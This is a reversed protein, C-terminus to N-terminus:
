RALRCRRARASGCTRATRRARQGRAWVGSDDGYIRCHRSPGYGDMPFTLDGDERGIRFSKAPSRTARVPTLATTMINVRGWYGPNPSGMRETGNETCSPEPLDEYVLLEQGVRFMDKDQLEFRGEIKRYVGNVPSKDVIHLGDKVVTFECHEPNLYFDQDFPPGYSRGFNHPGGEIDLSGGESGDERLLTMRARFPGGIVPPRPPTAVVPAVPPAAAPAALPAASPAAQQATPRNTTTGPPPPAPKHAPTEITGGADLRGGCRGCFRFGPPNVQGCTSCTNIEPVASDAPLMTAGPGDDKPRAIAPINVGAEPVSPPTPVKSGSSAPRIPPTLSPLPPPPAKPAVPKPPSPAVTDGRPPLKTGCALCFKYHDQNEKGCNPCIIM